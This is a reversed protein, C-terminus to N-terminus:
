SVAEYPYRMRTESCTRQFQELWVDDAQHVEEVVVVAIQQPLLRYRASRWSRTDLPGLRSAVSQPGEVMLDVGIWAMQLVAVHSLSMVAWFFHQRM